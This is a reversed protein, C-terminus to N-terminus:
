DADLQTLRVLATRLYVANPALLVLFSPNELM